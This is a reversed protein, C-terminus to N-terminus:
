YIIMKMKFNFLDKINYKYFDSKLIIINLYYHIRISTFIKLVRLLNRM